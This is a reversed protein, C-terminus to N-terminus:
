RKKGETLPHLLHLDRYIRVAGGLGFFIIPPDHSDFLLSPADAHRLGMVVRSGYGISTVRKGDQGGGRATLKHHM